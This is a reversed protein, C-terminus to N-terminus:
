NFTINIGPQFAAPDRPLPLPSAKYVARITSDDFLGNGSSSAISASLVEGSASLRINVRCSLAPDLGPPLTRVRKIAAVLQTAWVSVEASTRAQSEAGLAVALEAEQQKKAEADARAQADRKKKEDAKRKADEAAAQKKMDELQQKQEAEAKKKADDALKQKEAIEAQKKAELAKQEVVKAAEAQAQQQRKVEAPDPKPPEPKAPEPKPPELKPPEPKPAPPQEAAKPQPAAHPLQDPRILAGEIVNLPQPKRSCQVGSFLFLILVAHLLSAGVLHRFQLTM